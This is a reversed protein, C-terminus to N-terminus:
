GGKRVVLNKTNCGRMTNQYIQELTQQKAGYLVDHAKQIEKSLKKIEEQYRPSLADPFVKGDMNVTAAGVAQNIASFMDRLYKELVELAILGSAERAYQELSGVGGSAMTCVAMTQLRTTHFPAIRILQKAQDSLTGNNTLLQSVFSNSSISMDDSGLLVQNVMKQLGAFNYTNQTPGLCDDSDCTYKNTNNVGGGGEMIDKFSLLPEYETIKPMAYDSDDEKTGIITGTVSMLAEALGTDGSGFAMAIYGNQKLVKWAVNGLLAKVQNGSLKGTATGKDSKNLFGEFADKAQGTAIAVASLPGGELQNSLGSLGLKDAATDVLGQAVKCSDGAAKNLDRVIKELNSIIEKCTPCMVSLALKFAYGAANSAISQMLHIFQDSSIFSFSGLFMDIGGCGGDFRPPTFNILDTHIRKNRIVVSPGAVVGRGMAMHYGGDSVNTMSNFLGRMEDEFGAWAQAPALFLFLIMVLATVRRLPRRNM